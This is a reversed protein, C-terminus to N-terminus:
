SSLVSSINAVVSRPECEDAPDIVNSPKTLERCCGECRKPRVNEVVDSIDANETVRGIPIASGTRRREPLRIMRANLFASPSM